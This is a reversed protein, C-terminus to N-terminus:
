KLEEIAKEAEKTLRKYDEIREELINIATEKNISGLYYKSKEMARQTMYRVGDKDELIACYSDCEWGPYAVEFRYVVKV